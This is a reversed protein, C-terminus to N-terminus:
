STPGGVVRVHAGDSLLSAGAVVVQEGAELGSVVEVQGDGTLGLTVDRRHACGDTGVTWM